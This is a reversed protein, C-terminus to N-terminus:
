PRLIPYKIKKILKKSSRSLSMFILNFPHLFLYALYGSNSAIGRRIELEFRSPLLKERLLKLKGGIGPYGLWTFFYSVKPQPAESVFHKLIFLLTKDALSVPRLAAMFDEPVESLDQAAAYSLGHFCFTQLKLSKIKDALRKWDISSGEKELFFHLDRIFTESLVGRHATTYATLYIFNDEPHLMEVATNEYQLTVARDWLAQIEKSGHFYWFDWIIDLNISQDRNLYTLGEDPRRKFDKTELVSMVKRIDKKQILLDIDAMPRMGASPYARILLDIGKLPLVPIQQNQLEQTLELFFSLRLRNEKLLTGYDALFGEFEEAATDHNLNSPITM